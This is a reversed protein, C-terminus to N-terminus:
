AAAIERANQQVSQNSLKFISLACGILGLHIWTFALLTGETAQYSICYVLAAFLLATLEPNSKRKLIKRAGVALALLFLLFVGLGLAGTDHLVRMETNGIWGADVSADIISYDFMLQFSSTGNGVIPHLIVDDWSIAIPLLRSRATEDATIDTVELSNFRDIYIPVLVPALLLAVGLVTASVAVLTRPTMLRTWIGYVFVLVYMLVTTMLVARSLSIAMGAATIAFGILYKKCPQKLHMALMMVSNAGCYAGLINAEFQTGYTGPAADYQDVTMGFTTGLILHSYFCILAYAAELAGVALVVQFARRFAAAKGALLRLLFYPLIVLVQQMAWKTTQAPAVSTFASSVFNMAIYALLFCDAVVWRVPDQRKKLAFLLAVVLLGAVMHEPRAKLGGIEVFLRPMAAAVVLSIISAAASKSLWYVAVPVVMAATVVMVAAGNTETSWILAVALAAL